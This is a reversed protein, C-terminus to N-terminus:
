GGFAQILDVFGPPNYPEVYSGMCMPCLTIPDWSGVSVRM